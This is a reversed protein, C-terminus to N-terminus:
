QNNASELFSPVLVSLEELEKPVDKFDEKLGLILMKMLKALLVQESPGINYGPYVRNFIQDLTYTAFFTEISLSRYLSRKRGITNGPHKRYWITPRSLFYHQYNMALRIWMDTDEALRLREDFGGVEEYCKKPVIVSSTCFFGARSLLLDKILNQSSCGM